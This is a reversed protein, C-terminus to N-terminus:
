AADRKEDTPANEALVAGLARWAEDTPVQEDLDQRLFSQLQPWLALARDAVPNTGAVYAGIEVLERM